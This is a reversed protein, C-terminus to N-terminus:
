ALTEFLVRIPFEFQQDLVGVVGVQFVLFSNSRGSGVWGLGVWGTGDTTDSTPLKYIYPLLRTRTWFVRTKTQLLTLLVYHDYYVTTRVDLPVPLHPFLNTSHGTQLEFNPENAICVSSHHCRSLGREHLVKVGFPLSGFANLM